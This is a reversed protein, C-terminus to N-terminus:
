LPIVTYETNMGEGSKGVTFKKVDPKKELIAKLNKLVSVPVRYEQGDVDAILLKFSDGKGDTRTVEKVDIDVSVEELECINKTTQPEYAKAMDKINSM